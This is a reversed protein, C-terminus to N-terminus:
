PAAVRTLRVIVRESADFSEDGVGVLTGELREGESDLAADFRLQPPGDFADQNASCETETCKCFTMCLLIQNCPVPERMANTCGDPTPFYGSNYTDLCAYVPPLERPTGDANLGYPPDITVRVPTQIECATDFIQRAPFALRLREDEVLGARVVYDYGEIPTPVQVSDYGEGFRQFPFPDRPDTPVPIPEADGFTMTGNGQEDLSLRVRDSGTYFNYAEAYGEWVAAYSELASRDVGLRGDGLDVPDASCALALLSASSILGRALCSAPDSNSKTNRQNM